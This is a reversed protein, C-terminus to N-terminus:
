GVSIFNFKMNVGGGNWNSSSAWLPLTTGQTAYKLLSSLLLVNLSNAGVSYASLIDSAGSTSGLNLTFAAGNVERITAIVITKYTSLTGFASGLTSSITGPHIAPMGDLYSIGTDTLVGPGTTGSQQGYMPINNFAMNTRAWSALAKGISQVNSM